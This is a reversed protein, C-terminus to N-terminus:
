NACALWLRRLERKARCCLMRACQSIRRSSMQHSVYMAPLDPQATRTSVRVKFGLLALDSATLRANQVHAINAFGQRIFETHLEIAGVSGLWELLSSNATGDGIDGLTDSSSSVPSKNKMGEKFKPCDEKWHGKGKCYYCVDTAKAAAKNNDQRRGASLPRSTSRSRSDNSSSASPPRPKRGGPASAPRRKRLPARGGGGTKRMANAAAQRSQAGGGAACVDLNANDATLDSGGHDGAGGGGVRDGRGRASRKGERTPYQPPQRRGSRGAAADYSHQESQGGSQRTRASGPRQPVYYLPKRKTPVRATALRNSLAGHRGAGAAATAGRPTGAATTSSGTSLTTGMTATASPTITSAAAAEKVAKKAAAAIDSRVPNNRNHLRPSVHAM